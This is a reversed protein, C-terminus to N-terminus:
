VKKSSNRDHQLKNAIDEPIMGGYANLLEQLKGVSQVSDYGNGIWAVTPNKDSDESICPKRVIAFFSKKTQNWGVSIDYRASEFTYQSM